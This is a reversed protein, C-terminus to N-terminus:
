GDSKVIILSMMCKRRIRRSNEDRARTASQVAGSLALTRESSLLRPASAVAKQLEKRPIGIRVTVAAVMVGTTYTDGEGKEPIIRITTTATPSHRSSAEGRRGDADVLAGGGGGSGGAADEAKGARADLAADVMGDGGLEDGEALGDDGDGTGEEVDGGGDCGDCCGEGRYYGGGM